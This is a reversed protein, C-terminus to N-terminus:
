PPKYEDNYYSINADLEDDLKNYLIKGFNNFSEKPYSRIIIEDSLYNYLHRNISASLSDDIILDVTGDKIPKQLKHLIYTLFLAILENKYIIKDQDEIELNSFNRVDLLETIMLLAYKKFASKDIRIGSQISINDLSSALSTTYGGGKIKNSYIDLIADSGGVIKKTKINDTLFYKIYFSYCILNIIILIIRLYYFINFEIINEKNNQKISFYIIFIIFFLIFINFIYFLYQIKNKDIFYVYFLISINIFSLIICIYTIIEDNNLM